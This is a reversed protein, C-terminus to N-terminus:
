DHDRTASSAVFGAIRLYKEMMVAPCFEVLYDDFAADPKTNRNFAALVAAALAQPNGAPLLTGYKGDQLLERCAPVDSALVPLGAALAELLVSGLGEQPTTSLIFIDAHGLLEPVDPRVGLFEVADAVGLDAALQELEQRLAGDGALLLRFNQIARRIEPIARLLTAHDKHRELTAVM